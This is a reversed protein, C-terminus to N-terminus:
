LGGVATVYPSSAPFNPAYLSTHTHAHTKKNKHKHKRPYKYANGIYKIQWHSLEDSCTGGSEVAGSDGASAIATTGHLGLKMFEVNARHKPIHNHKQKINKKTFNQTKM